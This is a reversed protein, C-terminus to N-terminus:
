YWRKHMLDQNWKKCYDCNELIYRTYFCVDIYPIVYLLYQSRIYLMNYSKTNIEVFLFM